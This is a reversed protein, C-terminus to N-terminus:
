GIEIWAVRGADVLFIHSGNTIKILTDSEKPILLAKRVLLSPAHDFAVRVDRLGNLESLALRLQDTTMSM